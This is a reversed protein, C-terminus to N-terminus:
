LCLLFDENLQQLALKFSKYKINLRGKQYSRCYRLSIGNNTNKLDRFTEEIQMRQAYMKVVQKANYQKISLSTFILWPENDQKAHKLSSSCQIKKGRLNKHIRNKPKSKVLHFYGTM